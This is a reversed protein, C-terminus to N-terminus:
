GEDPTERGEPSMGGPAVKIDAEALTHWRAGGKRCFYPAGTLPFLAYTPLIRGTLKM